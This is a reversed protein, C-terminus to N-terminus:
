GNCCWCRIWADERCIISVFASFSLSDYNTVQLKFSKNGWVENGFIESGRLEPNHQHM